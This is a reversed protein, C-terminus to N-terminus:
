SVSYCVGQMGQSETPNNYFGSHGFCFAFRFSIILRALRAREVGCYVRYRTSTGQRGRGTLHQGDFDERMSLRCKNTKSGRHLLCVITVCMRNSSTIPPALRLSHIRGWMASNCGRTTTACNCGRRTKACNSIILMEVLAVLSSHRYHM